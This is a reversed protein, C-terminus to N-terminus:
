DRRLEIRVIVCLAIMVLGLAMSIVGTIVAFLAFVGPISSLVLTLPVCWTYSDRLPAVFRIIESDGREGALYVQNLLYYIVYVEGAILLANIFFNSVPHFIDLVWMVFSAAIDAIVVYKMTKPVEERYMYPLAILMLVWGIFDPVVDITGSKYALPISGVVFVIGFAMLILGKRYRELETM